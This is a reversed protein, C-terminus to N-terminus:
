VGTIRKIRNIRGLFIPNQSTTPNSQIVNIIRTISSKISNEFQLGFINKNTLPKRLPSASYVNSVNEEKNYLKILYEFLPEIGEFLSYVYVLSLKNAVTEMDPIIGPYSLSLERLFRYLM